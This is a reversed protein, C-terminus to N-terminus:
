ATVSGVWGGAVSLPMVVAPVTLPVTVPVAVDGAVRGEAIEAIARGTPPAEIPLSKASIPLEGSTSTVLAETSARKVTSLTPVYVILTLFPPSTAVM